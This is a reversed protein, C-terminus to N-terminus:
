GRFDKKLDERLGQVASDSIDIPVYRFRLGTELFHRLLIKTKAGDGAGLNWSTSAGAWATAIDGKYGGWSRRKAARDSLIKWSWSRRSFGAAKRMTCTSARCSKPVASLGDSVEDAFARLCAETHCTEFDEKKSQGNMNRGISRLTEKFTIIPAAWFLGAPGGLPVARLPCAERDTSPRGSSSWPATSRKETNGYGLSFRVACHAEAESLGMALLAHSPDPSGSRCASGSSFCVGYQDMAMVMSEGRFGPLTM